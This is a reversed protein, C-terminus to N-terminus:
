RMGLGQVGSAVFNRVASVIRESARGDGFPNVGSTMMRYETESELLKTVERIIEEKGTGVLKAVGAKVGEPRETNERMILVPKRFSPAEEQVGGSDTLVLYSYKMLNIFALYDLPEILLIRPHRGLIVNVTGLVNPNPHVPYIPKAPLNPTVVATLSTFGDKNNALANCFAQGAPGDKPGVILDIHAVE